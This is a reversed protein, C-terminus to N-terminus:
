RACNQVSTVVWVGRMLREVVLVKVTRDDDGLVAFQEVVSVYRQRISPGLELHHDDGDALFLVAADRATAAFGERRAQAVTKPVAYDINSEATTVCGLGDPEPRDPEDEGTCGQLALSLVVGLTPTWHGGWRTM